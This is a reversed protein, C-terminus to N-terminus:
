APICSEHPILQEPGSCFAGNCNRPALNPTHGYFRRCDAGRPAGSDIVALPAPEAQGAGAEFSPTRPPLCSERLLCSCALFCCWTSSSAWRVSGWKCVHGRPRLGSKHSPPFTVAPQGFIAARGEFYHM